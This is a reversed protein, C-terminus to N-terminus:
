STDYKKHLPPLMLILTIMKVYLVLQFIFWFLEYQRWGFCFYIDFFSCVGVCLKLGSIAGSLNMVPLLVLLPDNLLMGERNENWPLFLHSYMLIGIASFPLIFM